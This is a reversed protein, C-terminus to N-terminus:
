RAADSSPKHAYHTLYLRAQQPTLASVVSAFVTDLIM